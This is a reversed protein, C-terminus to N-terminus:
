NLDPADLGILMIVVAQIVMVGLWHGSDIAALAWGRLALRTNVVTAPMVFGVWIVVASGIAMTWPSAEPPALILAGALICALWFEAAFVVMYTSVPRRHTDPTGSARAYARRLAIYYLTGFGFSAMTAVLIPLINALIYSM